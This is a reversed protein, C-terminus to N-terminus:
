DFVAWYFVCLGIKTANRKLRRTTGTEEGLVASGAALRSWFFM